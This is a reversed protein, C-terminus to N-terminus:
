LLPSVHESGDVTANQQIAIQSAKSLGVERPRQQPQSNWGSAAAKVYNPHPAEHLCAQELGYVFAESNALKERISLLANLRSVRGPPTIGTKKEADAHAMYDDVWKREAASFQTLLREGEAVVLAKRQKATPVKVSDAAASVTKADTESMLDNDQRTGDRGTGDPKRPTSPAHVTPTREASQTNALWRVADDSRVQQLDRGTVEAMAKRAAEAQAWSTVCGNPSAPAPLSSEARRGVPINQHEFWGPFWAFESDPGYRRLLGVAEADGLAAEIDAVTQADAKALFREAIALPYVKFRGEDDALRTMCYVLLCRTFVPLVCVAPHDWFDPELTRIRSSM